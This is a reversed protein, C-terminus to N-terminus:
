QEVVEPDALPGVQPEDAKYEMVVDGTKTTGDFLWVISEHGCGKCIRHGHHAVPIPNWLREEPTPEKHSDTFMPELPAPVHGCKQCMRRADDQLRRERDEAEQRENEKATLPHVGADDALPRMSGAAAFNPGGEREIPDDLYVGCYPCFRMGDHPYWSGYPGGLKRECAGCYSETDCWTQVIRLRAVREATLKRRGREGQEVGTRWPGAPPM